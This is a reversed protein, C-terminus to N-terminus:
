DEPLGGFAGLIRGFGQADGRWTQQLQAQDVLDPLVREAARVAIRLIDRIAALGGQESLEVNELTHIRGRQQLLAILAQAAVPTIQCGSADDWSVSAAPRSGARSRRATTTAPRCDPCACQLHMVPSCERAPRAIPLAATPKAAIRAPFLMGSKQWCIRTAAPTGAPRLWDYLLFSGAHRSTCAGALTRPPRC